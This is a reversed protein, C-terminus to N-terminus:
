SLCSEFVVDPSVKRVTRKLECILTTKSIVADWNVQQALEYWINYDFPNLDSSNPYWYDKDIFCPFHKSCWEQSKAHVHAKGSDQQFTSDTGFM